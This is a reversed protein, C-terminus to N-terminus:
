LHEWGIASIDRTSGDTRRLAAGPHGAVITGIRTIPCHTAPCAQPVSASPDAAFLLEYDEGDGLARALSMGPNLPILAADIEIRVNSARALRGADVGLGDSVDLMAHLHEGLTDALFTAEALRPEFTMHKGLGGIELSGGLTGTVYVADGILAGRRLVPGRTPHPRGVASVSLTLPGPHDRSFTAIDGGVIPCNWHAGWKHLSDALSMAAADPFNAPLCAGVLACLPSGAMAAIDSLTRAIAKRAIIDLYADRSFSGPFATSSWSGGLSAPSAFHRGEVVQDVKLLVLENGIRVAACDDGPPVVVHGFRAPQDAAALRIHELLSWERM